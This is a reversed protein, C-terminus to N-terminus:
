ALPIEQRKGNPGPVFNGVGTINGGPHALSRVFGGGVLDGSLAAIPFAHAL